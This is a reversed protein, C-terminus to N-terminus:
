VATAVDFWKRLMAPTLKQAIGHCPDCIFFTSCSMSGHFAVLSGECFACFPHSSPFAEISLDAPLLEDDIDDKDELNFAATWFETGDHFSGVGKGGSASSENELAELQRQVDKIASEIGSIGSFTASSMLNLPPQLGGLLSSPFMTQLTMKSQPNSSCNEPAAGWGLELFGKKCRDELDELQVLTTSKLPMLKPKCHIHDLFKSESYVLGQKPLVESLPRKKM